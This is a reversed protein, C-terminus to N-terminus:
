MGERRYIVKGYRDRAKCVSYTYPTGKLELHECIEHVPANAAEVLAREHRERIEADRMALAFMGLFFLVALCGQFLLRGEPNREPLKPPAEAEPALDDPVYRQRNLQRLLNATAYGQSM